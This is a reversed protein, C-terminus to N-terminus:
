PERSLCFDEGHLWCGEGEPHDDRCLRRVSGEDGRVYAAKLRENAADTRAGVCHLIGVPSVFRASYSSANRVVKLMQGAGAAPEPLAVTLPFLLRGGPRLRDLWIPM